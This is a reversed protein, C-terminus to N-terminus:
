EIRVGVTIWNLGIWQNIRSKRIILKFLQSDSCFIDYNRRIRQHPFKTSLCLKWMTKWALFNPSIVSNSATQLLCAVFINWLRILNLFNSVNGTRMTRYVKEYYFYTAVVMNLPFLWLYNKKLIAGRYGHNIDNFFILSPFNM